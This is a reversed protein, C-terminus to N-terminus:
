KNKRFRVYSIGSVVMVIGTIVSWMVFSSIHSEDLAKSSYANWRFNRETFKLIQFM